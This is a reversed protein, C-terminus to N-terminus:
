FLSFNVVNLIRLYWQVLNSTECDSVYTAPGTKEGLAHLRLYIHCFYFVLREIMNYLRLQM